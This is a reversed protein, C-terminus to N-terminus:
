LGVQSQSAPFSPLAEQEALLSAPLLSAGFSDHEEPTALAGPWTGPTQGWASAASPLEEQRALRRAPEAMEAECLSQTGTGKDLQLDHYEWSSEMDHFNWQSAM